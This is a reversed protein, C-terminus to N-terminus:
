IGASHNLLLLGFAMGWTAQALQMSVEGGDASHKQLMVEALWACIVRINYAKGKFEVHTSNLQLLSPAFVPQSCKVNHVQCWSRFPDHLLELPTKGGRSRIFLVSGMLHAAPGLNIGHMADHVARSFHFGPILLLPSRHFMNVM